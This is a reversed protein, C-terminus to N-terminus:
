AEQWRVAGQDVPNNQDTPIHATLCEGMADAERIAHYCISNSKKKLTSEPFQTNHIVAMNNGYMYSPGSLHVDMMQPKYRLGRLTEMENKTAVFEAVFVSSEITPQRKSFWVIPAMNLFCLFVTRSQRTMQDGSHDSDVFLQLDVEKGRAKSANSPMDCEKFKSHDIEPFTPDFM